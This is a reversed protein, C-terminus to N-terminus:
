EDWFDQFVAWNNLIAQLLAGRVSLCNSCLARDGSNGTATDERLRNSGRERKLSYKITKRHNKLWLTNSLNIWNLINEIENIYTTVGTKVGVM